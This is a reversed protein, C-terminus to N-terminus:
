HRDGAGLGERAERFVEKYRDRAKYLRVYSDVVTGIQFREVNKLGKQVLAERLAADGVVKRIGARISGTDFPDVLVASGDAVEKMPTLDSTVVPRGVANAEVILMGFGEYLSPFLVLDANRYRDVVEERKLNYEVHVDLGNNRILEQQGATIKGIIQLRCSMGKIADLVRDLNKNPTSGIFLFVPTERNFAKPVHTFAPDVFNNVVKIKNRGSRTHRLLEDKTKQSIVTVVDAKAIPLEYWLM